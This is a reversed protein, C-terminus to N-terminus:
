DGLAQLFTDVDARGLGLSGLEAETLVELQKNLKKNWKKQLSLKESAFLDPRKKFTILYSLAERFAHIKEHNGSLLVEPVVCGQWDRPRTFQPAELCNTIAFSDCTASDKHGLVGPVQRAMADIIALAPLEGGSLVFDGLSIEENIYNNLFRQDIGGYRGCVLVIEKPIQLLSAIKTQSLKQGQPSLYISHLSQQEGLSQMALALPECLMLMGDGGGFPRDDVTKHIDKTFERPNIFRVSILGSEIAQGVVGMKLTQAFIDPFLTIVAIKM